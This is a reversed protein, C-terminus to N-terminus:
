AQGRLVAIAEEVVARENRRQESRASFNSNLSGCSRRLDALYALAATVADKHSGISETLTQRDQEATQLQQTLQTGSDVLAARSSAFRAQAAEFDQKAQGEAAAADQATQTFDARLKGVAALVNDGVRAYSTSLSAPADPLDPQRAIQVFSPVTRGYFNALMAEAQQLAAVANISDQQALLFDKHQKERFQEQQEWDSDLDAVDDRVNDIAQQKESSLQETNQLAQQAEAGLASHQTRKDTAATM